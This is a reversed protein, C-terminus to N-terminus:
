LGRRELEPRNAYYWEEAERIVDGLHPVDEGDEIIEVRGERDGALLDYRHVHHHRHHDGHHGERDPLFPSDYRVVPGFGQLSVNYSYWETEVVPDEPDKQVVRALKRAEVIIGGKCRFEADLLFGGPVPEFEAQFAEHM